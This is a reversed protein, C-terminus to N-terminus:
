RNGKKKRATWWCLSGGDIDRGAEDYISITKWLPSYGIPTAHDSTDAFKPLSQQADM